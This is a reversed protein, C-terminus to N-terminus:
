VWMPPKLVRHSVYRSAGLLRPLPGHPQVPTQTPHLCVKSPATTAPHYTDPHVGADHLTHGVPHAKALFKGYEKGWKHDPSKYEGGKLSHEGRRYGEKKEFRHLAAELTHTPKHHADLWKNFSATGNEPVKEKSVKHELKSKAASKM